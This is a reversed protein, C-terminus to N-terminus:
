LEALLAVLLAIVVSIGVYWTSATIAKYAAYRIITAAVPAPPAPQPPDAVLELRRPPAQPLPLQAIALLREDDPLVLVLDPSFVAAAEM